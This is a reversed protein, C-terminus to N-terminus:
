VLWLVPGGACGSEPGRADALTQAAPRGSTPQSGGRAGWGRVVSCDGWSSGKVREGM